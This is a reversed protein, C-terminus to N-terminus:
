TIFEEVNVNFAKSIGILTKITPNTNEGSELKVITNYNVKALEALEAKTIGDRDRLDIVKKRIKDTSYKPLKKSMPRNMNACPRRFHM